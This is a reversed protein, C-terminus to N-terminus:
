RQDSKRASKRDDAIRKTMLKEIETCSWVKIRNERGLSILYAPDSVGPFPRAFQMALVPGSHAPAGLEPLPISLEPNSSALDHLRITGSKTGIALWRPPDTLATVSADDPLPIHWNVSDQRRSKSGSVDGIHFGDPTSLLLRSSEGIFHIRSNSATVGSARDLPVAQVREWKQKRLELLEIGFTEQGDVMRQSLVALFRDDASFAVSMFGALKDEDFSIEDQPTLTEFSSLAEPDCIYLQSYSREQEGASKLISFAILESSHSFDFARVVSNFGEPMRLPLSEMSNADYFQLLPGLKDAEMKRAFAAITSGSGGRFNVFEAKTLPNAKEDEFLSYSVVTPLSIVKDEAPTLALQEAVDSSEFQKLPVGSIMDWVDIRTGTPAKEEDKFIPFGTVISRGDRSLVVNPVIRTSESKPYRFDTQITQVSRSDMAQSIVQRAEAKERSEGGRGFLRNLFIDTASTNLERIFAKQNEVLKQQLARATTQGKKGSSKESEAAKVIEEPGGDIERYMGAMKQSAADGPLSIDPISAANQSAMKSLLGLYLGNGASGGGDTEPSSNANSLMMQAARAERMKGVNEEPTDGAALGSKQRIRQKLRERRFKEQTRLQQTLADRGTRQRGTDLKPLEELTGQAESNLATVGAMGRLAAVDPIQQLSVLGKQDVTVIKRSLETFAFNALPRENGELSVVQKPPGPNFNLYWLSAMKGPGATLLLEQREDLRFLSPVGSLPMTQRVAGDPKQFDEILWISIVPQDTRAIIVNGSCIVQRVPSDAALEGAIRCEGSDRKWVRVIGDGSGTVIQDGNDSYAVCGVSEASVNLEALQADGLRRLLGDAGTYVTWRDSLLLSQKAQISMTQRLKGSETEFVLGSEPTIVLLRSGDRSLQVASTSAPVEFAPQVNKLARVVSVRKVTGDAQLLALTNGTTDVAISTLDAVQRDSEFMTKGVSDRVVVKGDDLLCVVGQGDPLLQWQRVKEAAFQNSQIQTESWQRIEGDVSCTLISEAGNVFWATRIVANHGALNRLRVKRRVDWLEVTNRGGGALLFEGSDDISILTCEQGANFSTSKKWAATEYVSVEGSAQCLALFRGNVSVASATVAAGEVNTERLVEGKDNRCEVGKDTVIVYSGGSLTHVGILGPSAARLTFPEPFKARVLTGDASLAIYGQLAPLSEALLITQPMRVLARDSSRKQNVFDAGQVLTWQAESVVDVAFAAKGGAPVDVPAAVQGTASFRQVKGSDDTALIWQEDSSLRVSSFGVTQALVEVHESLESNWALMRGDAGCTWIRRNAGVIGTCAATHSKSTTGSSRELGKQVEFRGNEDQTILGLSSLYLGQVSVSAAEESSKELTDATVTVLKRGGEAAVVFGAQSQDPVMAKLPGALQLRSVESGTRRELGGSESAVLLSETTGARGAFGAFRADASVDLMDRTGDSKHWFLKQDGLVALQVGDAAITLLRASTLGTSEQRRCILSRNWTKGDSAAILLGGGGPLWWARAIGGASQSVSDSIKRDAVSWITGSGSESWISVSAGDDSVSAGVAPESFTGAETKQRGNHTIIQGSRTLIVATTGQLSGSVTLVDALSTDQQVAGSRSIQFLRGGSKLLIEDGAAALEDSASGRFSLERIRLDEAARTIVVLKEGTVALIEAAGPRTCMSSIAEPASVLSRKATRRSVDIMAPNKSDRIAGVLLDETLWAVSTLEAKVQIPEGFPEMQPLTLLRVEGNTFGIALHQGSPQLAVACIGPQTLAPNSKLLPRTWYRVDGSSHLSVLEETGPRFAMDIVPDQVVSDSSVLTGDGTNVASLIGNADTSAAVRGESSICAQKVESNKSLLTEKGGSLDVASWGGATRRVAMTGSRAIEVGQEGAALPLRGESAADFISFSEVNGAECGAYVMAGSASIQLTRIPSALTAVLRPESPNSIKWQRIQGKEDGTLVSGRVTDVDVSIVRPGSSKWTARTTGTQLDFVTIEGVSNVWAIATKGFDIGVAAVSANRLQNEISVKGLDWLVVRGDRDASILTQGASASLSKVPVNGSSLEITLGDARLVEVRGTESGSVVQSDGAFVLATTTGSEKKRESSDVDGKVLRLAIRDAAIPFAVQSAGPSVALVGNSAVKNELVVSPQIPLDLIRQEGKMSLCYLRPQTRDFRMDAIPGSHVLLTETRRQKVDVLSVMGNPSGLAINLCEQDVALCSFPGPGPSFTQVEGAELTWVSVTDASTLAAVHSGSETAVAYLFSAGSREYIREDGSQGLRWLRLMGDKGVSALEERTPSFALDLCGGSHGGMTKLFAQEAVLEAAYKDLGAVSRYRWLQIRGSPLAAAVYNRVDDYRLVDIGDEDGQLSMLLKRQEIDFLALRGNEREAVLTRGDPTLDTALAAEPSVDASAAPAEAVAAAAAPANAGGGVLNLLGGGGSSEQEETKAGAAGTKDAPNDGKGASNMLSAAAGADSETDTRSGSAGTQEAGSKQAAVSEGGNNAKAAAADGSTEQKQAAPETKKESKEAAGGGANKNPIKGALEAPPTSFDPESGCGAFALCCILAALFTQGCTFFAHGYRCASICGGWGGTNVQRKSNELM